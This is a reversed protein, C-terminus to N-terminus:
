ISNLRERGPSRFPSSMRRLDISVAGGDGARLRIRGAQRRECLMLRREAAAKAEARSRGARVAKVDPGQRPRSLRIAASDAIDSSSRRARFIADLGATKDNGRVAGIRLYRGNGAAHQIPWDVVRLPGETVHGSPGSNM